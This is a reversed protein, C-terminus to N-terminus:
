SVYVLGSSFIINVYGALGFAGTDAVCGDYGCGSLGMITVAM